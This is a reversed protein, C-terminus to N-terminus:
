KAFMQIVQIIMTIIFGLMGIVILGIGSAKVIAKYEESDPKKTIALVRKYENLKNKIWVPFGGEPMKFRPTRFKSIDIPMKLEPKKEEPQSAEAQPCEGPKETSDQKIDM